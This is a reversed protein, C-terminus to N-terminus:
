IMGMWIVSFCHESEAWTVLWEKLCWGWLYNSGVTDAADRRIIVRKRRLPIQGTDPPSSPSLLAQQAYIHM